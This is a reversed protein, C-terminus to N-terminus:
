KLKVLRKRKFAKAVKRIEKMLEAEKRARTAAAQAKRRDIEERTLKPKPAPPAPPEPLPDVHMAIKEPDNDQLWAALLRKQVDTYSNPVAQGRRPRRKM